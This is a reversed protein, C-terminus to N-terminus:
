YSSVLGVYAGNNARVIDDLSTMATFPPISEVNKGMSYLDYDSNVPVLFRDKRRQVAPSNGGDIKLYKYPNGWADNINELSIDSLNNPLNDNEILYASIGVEFIRIESTARAIRARYRFKMYNPTAVAAVTAFIVVVIMVEILTFGYSGFLPSRYFSPGRQSWRWDCHKKSM